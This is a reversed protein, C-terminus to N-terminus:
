SGSEGSHGVTSRRERIRASHDSQDFTGAHSNRAVRHTVGIGTAVAYFAARRPM